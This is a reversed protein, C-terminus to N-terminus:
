NAVPVVKSIRSPLFATALRGTPLRNEAEATDPRLHVMFRSLGDARTFATGTRRNAPEGTRGVM